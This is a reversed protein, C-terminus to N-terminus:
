KIKLLQKIDEVSHNQLPETQQIANKKQKKVDETICFQLYSKLCKEIFRSTM